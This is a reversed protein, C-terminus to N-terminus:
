KGPLYGKLINIAGSVDANIVAGCQNRNYPAAIFVILNLVKHRVHLM